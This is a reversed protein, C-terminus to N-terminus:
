VFDEQALDLLTAFDADLDALTLGTYADAIDQLTTGRARYGPAWPDTEVVSLGWLRRDDTGDQSYRKEEVSLVALYADVGTYGGPSRIQVTGATANALLSLLNDRASATETFLELDSQAATLPGSVVVNRGNVVFRSSQRERTLSPWATVVVEAAQGTIADTLAVKGGVLEYNEVPGTLVSGGDVELRYRYPTGFPLEADTVLMSTDTAQTLDAGRLPTKEAGVVRYVTFYQGVTLGTVTILVRGPWVDQPTVIMSAM